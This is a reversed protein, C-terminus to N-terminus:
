KTSLGKATGLSCQRDGGEHPDSGLLDSRERM